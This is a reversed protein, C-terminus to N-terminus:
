DKLELPASLRIDRSSAGVQIEFRGPDAIWASKNVEHAIAQGERQVLEMDWTAAMTVGPPFSTTLVKASPGSAGSTIASSGVWPRAFDRFGPLASPANFCSWAAPLERRSERYHPLASQHDHHYVVHKNGRVCIGWVFFFPKKNSAPTFFEPPWWGISVETGSFAPVTKLNQNIWAIEL